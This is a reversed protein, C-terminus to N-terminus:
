LQSKKYIYGHIGDRPVTAVEFGAFDWSGPTGLGSPIIWRGIMRNCSDWSGTKTGVGSPVTVVELGVCGLEWGTNFDGKPCGGELDIDDWSYNNLSLVTTRGLERSKCTLMMGVTTVTGVGLM